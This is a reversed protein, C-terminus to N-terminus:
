EARANWSDLAEEIFAFDSSDSSRERCFLRTEMGCEDCVVFARLFGYKNAWVKVRGEGGCHPCTKVEVGFFSTVKGGEM